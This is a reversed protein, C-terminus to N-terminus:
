YYYYYYYHPMHYRLPLPVTRCAPFDGTRFEVLHIVLILKGTEESRVLDQPKGM